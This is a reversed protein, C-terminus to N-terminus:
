GLAYAKKGSANLIDGILKTTTTKGNTGTVAVIKGKCFRYGLEIEGIVPVSYRKAYEVLPHEQSISPSIVVLDKGDVVDFYDKDSVDVAQPYDSLVIPDDSYVSVKAGHSLLLKCAGKGSIGWGIILVNQM